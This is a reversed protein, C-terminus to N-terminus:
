SLTITVANAAIQFTNGNAVTIPAGNFQGFFVRVPTGAGDTLELSNITWSSGSGNTWSIASSPCTMSAPSGTPASSAGPAATGGATYGTGSLETGSASATSATSTLKFKMPNTGNLATYQAGPKGSTGCPTLGTLINIALTQDLAAM